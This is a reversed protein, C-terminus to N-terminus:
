NKYNITIDGTSTEIKINKSGKQSEFNKGDYEIGDINM